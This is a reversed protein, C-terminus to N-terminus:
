FRQKRKGYYIDEVKEILSVVGLCFGFLLLCLAVYAVECEM